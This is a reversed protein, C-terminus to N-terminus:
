TGKSQTLEEIMEAINSSNDGEATATAGAFISWVLTFVIDVHNSLSFNVPYFRIGETTATEGFPLETEPVVVQMEEEILHSFKSTDPAPCM